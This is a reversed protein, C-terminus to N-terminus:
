ADRNWELSLNGRGYIKGVMTERVKESPDWPNKHGSGYNVAWQDKKNQKERKMKKTENM